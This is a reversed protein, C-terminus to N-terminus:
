AVRDRYTQRLTGLIKVDKSVMSRLVCYVCCTLFATVAMSIAFSEWDLVATGYNM